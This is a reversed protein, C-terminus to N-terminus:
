DRLSDIARGHSAGGQENVAQPVSAAVAEHAGSDVINPPPMDPYSDTSNIRFNSRPLRTKHCHESITAQTRLTPPQMLTWVSTEMITLTM